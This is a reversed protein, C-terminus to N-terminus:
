NRYVVQRYWQDFNLARASWTHHRSAHAWGALGMRRRLDFDDHLSELARAIGAATTRPYEVPVAVGWDPTLLAATSHHDLGVVPLGSAMAEVVEGRSTTDRLATSLLVDSDLMLKTLESPGVRGVNEVCHRLGANSIQAEIEPTLRESGVLRLRIQCNSRVLALGELAIWLGDVPHMQGSWLVQLVQDAAREPFTTPSLDDGVAADVEIVVREAGAEVAVDATAQNAAVVLQASQLPHRVLPMHSILEPVVLRRGAERRWQPGFPGRFASPAVDGGRLPGIVTPKAMRWLRSGSGIGTGTLQHVVDADIVSDLETAYREAQRHWLLQRLGRRTQDLRGGFRTPAVFHVHLNPRHPGPARLVAPRNDAHTLLHVEHGLDALAAPLFWGLRGESGLEPGCSYASLLIKM